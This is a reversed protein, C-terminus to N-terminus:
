RRPQRGRPWWFLRHAKVGAPVAEAVICGVSWCPPGPRSSRMRRATTVLYTRGTRVAVIAEGPEVDEDTQYTLKVAAGIPKM